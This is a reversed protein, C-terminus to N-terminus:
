ERSSETLFITELGKTLSEIKTNVYLTEPSDTKVHQESICRGLEMAAASIGVHRCNMGKIAGMGEVARRREGSLRTDRAEYCHSIADYLSGCHEGDDMECAIYERSFALKASRAVDEFGRTYGEQCDERPEEVVPPVTLIVEDVPPQYSDNHLYDALRQGWYFLCAGVVVGMGWHSWRNRRAARRERQMKRALDKIEVLQENINDIDGSSIREIGKELGDDKM